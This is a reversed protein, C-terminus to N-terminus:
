YLLSYPGVATTFTTPATFSSLTGFTQGTVGKTLYTDQTGTVVMRVTDTTGNSQMCAFYQAPGVAYYKSTFAFKQYASTGSTAAGALASNALLNGASDYLAVLHKDTGGATTGNLVAIGTLLKNAPLDAEICYQTTASLTTGTSNLSTYATGGSNPALVEYQALPNNIGNVWVGGICDFIAQTAVDPRPAAPLNARTCAGGVSLGPRSNSFFTNPGAFVLAGSAHAMARSGGAGRTVTLYTGSVATVTLLEGDIYLNTQQNINSTIAYSNSNLGTAAAVSIQNSGSTVAASLTTPILSVQANALAPLLLAVFFAVILNKKM